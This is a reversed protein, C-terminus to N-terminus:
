PGARRIAHGLRHRGRWSVSLGTLELSPYRLLRSALQRVMQGVGTTPGLLATVDM